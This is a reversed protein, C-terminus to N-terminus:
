PCKELHALGLDVFVFQVFHVVSIEPSSMGISVNTLISDSNM